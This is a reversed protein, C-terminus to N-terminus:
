ALTLGVPLVRHVEGTEQQRACGQKALTLHGHVDPGHALAQESHFV